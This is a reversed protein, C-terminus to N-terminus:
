FRLQSLIERSNLVNKLVKREVVILIESERKSGEDM